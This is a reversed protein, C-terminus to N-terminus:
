VLYWPDAGPAVSPAPPTKLCYFDSVTQRGCGHVGQAPPTIQHDEWQSLFFFRNIRKQENTLSYRICLIFWAKAVTESAGRERHRILTELVEDIEIGFNM